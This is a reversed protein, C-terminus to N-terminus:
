RVTVFRLTREGAATRVRLFRVGPTAADAWELLHEGAEFTGDALRAVRRGLLDYVEATVRGRAPLALRFRVRGQAPQSGAFALALAPPTRLTGADLRGSANVTQGYLDWGSMAFWANSLWAIVVGGYAGTEIVPSRQIAADVGVALGAEPWGSPRSGDALFRCAYIDSEDASTRTDSWVATVVGGNTELRSEFQDGTSVSAPLGGAPWGPPRTGDALVRQLLLRSNTAQARLVPAVGGIGFARVALALGGAGDPRLDDVYLAADVGVLVPLGAAPWGPVPSGDPQLRVLRPQFAQSLDTLTVLESWLVYAGGAGDAVIAPASPLGSGARVLRGESPWGAAPGGGGDLRMTWIAPGLGRGDVWAFWAGGGMAPAMRGDSQGSSDSVVAVGLDGWLRTGDYALRQARLRTTGDGADETWGVVAGTAGGPGLPSADDCVAPDFADRPSTSVAVDFTVFGGRRLARLTRPSAGDAQETYAVVLADCGWQSPCGDPVVHAAVPQAQTGPRVILPSGDVPLIDGPLAAFLSTCFLDGEDGPWGRLDQWVLWAGRASTFPGFATQPVSCPQLLDGAVNCLPFGAPSGDARAPAPIVHFAALAALVFVFPVRPM